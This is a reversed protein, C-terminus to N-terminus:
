CLFRTQASDSPRVTELFFNQIASKESKLQDMACLRGPPGGVGVGVGQQRLAGGGECPGERLAAGRDGKVRAGEAGLREHVLVLPGPVEDRVGAGLGEGAGDARAFVGPVVLQLVVKASHMADLSSSGSEDREPASGAEQHGERRPTRPRDEEAGGGLDAPPRDGRFPDRM